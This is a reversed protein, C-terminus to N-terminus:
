PTSLYFYKVTYVLSGNYAEALDFEYTDYLIFLGRVAGNWDTLTPFDESLEKITQIASGLSAKSTKFRHTNPVITLDSTKLVNLACIPDGFDRRASNIQNLLKQFETMVINSSVEM